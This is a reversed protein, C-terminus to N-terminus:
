EIETIITDNVNYFNLHEQIKEILDSAKDYDVLRITHWTKGEKYMIDDLNGTFKLINDDSDYEILYTYETAEGQNGFILSRSYTFKISKTITKEKSISEIQLNQIVEDPLTINFANGDYNSITGFCLTFELDEINDLMGELIGCGGSTSTDKYFIIKKNDVDESAPCIYNMGDLTKNRIIVYIDANEIIGYINYSFVIKKDDIEINNIELTGGLTSNGYYKTDGTVLPYWTAKQYAKYEEDTKDDYFRSEIPVVKVNKINQINDLLIVYDEEIKLKTNEDIESSMYIKNEPIEEGTELNYYKQGIIDSTRTQYKIINDNSDTVLFTKYKCHRSEDYEELTVDEVIRKIRIFTQFNTNMVKDLILTSGDDLKQEQKEFTDNTNDIKSSIKIMENVPVKENGWGVSSDDYFYDFWIRLDLEESEYNMTYIVQYYSYETDSEKNMKDLFFSPEEGNIRIEYVPGFSYRDSTENYTIEGLENLAKEKLTIKYELIVYASDRAVNELDLTFYENDISEKAEVKSEEFNQSLKTIGLKQLVQNNTIGAYVTLGLTGTIIAIIVKQLFKLFTNKKKAKVNVNLRSIYELGENVAREYNEPINIEQKLINKLNCEFNSM